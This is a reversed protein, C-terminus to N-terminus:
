DEMEPRNCLRMELASGSGRRLVNLRRGNELKKVTHWANKYDLGLDLTLRFLSKTSGGRREIESLIQVAVGTLGHM